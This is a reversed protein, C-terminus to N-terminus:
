AMVISFILMLPARVAIRILMMYATQVNTIDTTLRTVLSSTSFKDINYFSFKQIKEFVDHRVNKAFGAAANASTMGAIGGCALSSLAMVFLIAGTKLITSMEIGSQIGNVLRATIFPIIAEIVVETTIFILTLYTPKKYERVCKLFKKLM